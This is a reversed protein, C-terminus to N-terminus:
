WADELLHDAEVWKGRQDAELGDHSQHPLLAALSHLLEDAPVELVQRSHLAYVPHVVQDLLVHVEHGQPPFLGDVAVDPGVDVQAGDRLRAQPGVQALLFRQGLEDELNSVVVAGVPIHALKLALPLEDIVEM